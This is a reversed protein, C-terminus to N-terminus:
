ASTFSFTRSTTIGGRGAEDFSKSWSAPAVPGSLWPGRLLWDRLRSSWNALTHGFGKRGFWGFWCQWGASTKIVRGIETHERVRGKQFRIQILVRGGGLRGPQTKKTKTFRHHASPGNFLFSVIVSGLHEIFLEKAVRPAEIHWMQVVWFDCIITILCRIFEDPFWHEGNHISPTSYIVLNFPILDSM